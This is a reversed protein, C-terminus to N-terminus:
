AARSAEAESFLWAEAKHVSDFWRGSERGALARTLQSRALTPAVVFALRRSRFVPDALVEHFAVVTEQPQIKMGRVDNLSVHDNLAWGLAAHAEARGIRFREVDAPHFLGSMAIRVLGRPRDIEFSFHADMADRNLAGGQWNAVAAARIFVTKGVGGGAGALRRV